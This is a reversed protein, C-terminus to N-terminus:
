PGEIMNQTEGRLPRYDAEEGGLRRTTPIPPTFFTTKRASKQSQLGVKLLM